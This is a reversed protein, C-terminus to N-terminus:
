QPQGKEQRYRDWEALISPTANGPRRATPDLPHLPAVTRRLISDHDHIQQTTRPQRVHVM